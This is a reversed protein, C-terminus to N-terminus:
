DVEQLASQLAALTLSSRDRAVLRPALKAVRLRERREDVLASRAPGRRTLAAADGARQVHPPGRRLPLAPRQGQVALRQLRRLDDRAALGDASPLDHLVLRQRLGGELRGM